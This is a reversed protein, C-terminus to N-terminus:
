THRSSRRSSGKILNKKKLFFLFVGSLIDLPQLLLLFNGWQAHRDPMIFIRKKLFLFFFFGGMKSGRWREKWQSVKDLAASEGWALTNGRVGMRRLMGELGLPEADALRVM